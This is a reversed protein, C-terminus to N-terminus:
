TALQVCFLACRIQETRGDVFVRVIARTSWTRPDSSRWSWAGVQATNRWIEDRSFVDCALQQEMALVRGQFWPVAVAHSKSDFQSQGIFARQHQSQQGCRAVIFVAQVGVSSARGTSRPCRHVKSSSSAESSYHQATSLVSAPLHATQREFLCQNSQAM